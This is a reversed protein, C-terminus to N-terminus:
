PWSILPSLSPGKAASVSRSRYAVSCKTEPLKSADLQRASVPLIRCSPLVTSDYLISSFPKTTQMTDLTYSPLIIALASSPRVRDCGFGDGAADDLLAAGDVGAGGTTCVGDAGAGADVEEVVLGGAVGDGAAVVSDLSDARKLSGEARVRPLALSAAMALISLM